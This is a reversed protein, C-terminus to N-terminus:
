EFVSPQALADESKVIDAREQVAVILAAYDASGTQGGLRIKGADREALPISEPRGPSFALVVYVAYNGTQTVVTGVTPTGSAPKRAGFVAVGIAPDVVTDQRGIVADGIEIHEYKAAAETLEAGNLVAAELEDAQESAMAAARESRIAAIIEASMEELTRRTAEVHKTVQFVVSRNADLEIIDSIHRDALNRENFVADIMAQNSGFVDSGARTMGTATHLELGVTEALGNMDDADFLANSLDRMLEDVVELSKRDRLEDLLQARVQALPLSGGSEISDLRIIHFGFLSKVPGAIDGEAMSFITDGLAGPLQSKPLMSLDGGREATGGDKSYQRALDEFPEGAKARAALENAQEEAQAEDDGALILIHRAQRREDQLYRSSSDEYFAVLEEETIDAREGLDDRRIEVYSLDVQEPSLFADPRADYYSSVDEDSVVMSEGLAATNIEAFSVARQEGFLNIYRRYESPTVFASAGVGRQLQSLRLGLRQNEEFQSPDLARLELWQYYEEKSFVGDVMFETARQIYQTVLDDNIRFGQEQVYQDLLSQRILTDLANERIIIRFEQPIDIDQDLYQQLANRYANEFATVSIERDNVKAAYGLGIFDYNIGFFMFPVGILALIAIAFGGTFRDRIVQLM